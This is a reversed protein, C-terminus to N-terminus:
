MESTRSKKYEEDMQKATKVPNVFFYSDDVTVKIGIGNKTRERTELLLKVEESSNKSREFQAEQLQNISTPIYSTDLSETSARQNHSIVPQQMHSIEYKRNNLESQEHTSKSPITHIINKTRNWSKM